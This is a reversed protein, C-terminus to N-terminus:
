IKEPNLNNTYVLVAEVNCDDNPCSLNTVIGDGEIGCDEYTDSSGYILEGNCGYCKM